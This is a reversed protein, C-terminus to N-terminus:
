RTGEESAQELSEAEVVCSELCAQRSAFRNRSRSCYGRYTPVCDAAELDYYDNSYHNMLQASSIALQGWLFAELDLAAWAALAAAAGLAQFALGGLLHLPRGLRVLARAQALSM